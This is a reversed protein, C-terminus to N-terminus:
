PIGLRFLASYAPIRPKGSGVVIHAEVWRTFEERNMELPAPLASLGSRLKQMLTGRRRTAGWDRIKKFRFRRSASRTVLSSSFAWSGSGFRSMPEM